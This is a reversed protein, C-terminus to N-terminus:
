IEAGVHERVFSALRSFYERGGAMVTDNHGAGAIEYWRKPEPSAEYLQRGMEVPVIGDAEGHVFLVPARLRGLKSISDFRQTMGRLLFGPLWGYHLKGLAVASTFASEAILAGCPNRTALEIAVAAGLSRGFIVLRGPNVGREELLYRYARDAAEYLSRESPEGGSKGYGPYDIILVNFGLEALMAVNDLRDYLNGANGHLFLLDAVADRGGVYLGHVEAEGEGALWVEEVVRADALAPIPADRAVRTPFYVFQRELASLMLRGGGVFLFVAAAVAVIWYV